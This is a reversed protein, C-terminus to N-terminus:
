DEQRQKEEEEKRLKEEEERKRQEEEERRKAEEEAKVFEEEVQKFLSLVENVVFDEVRSDYHPTLTLRKRKCCEVMEKMLKIGDIGREEIMKQQISKIFEDVSHAFKAKLIEGEASVDSPFAYL